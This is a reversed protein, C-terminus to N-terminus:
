ARGADMRGLWWNEFNWAGEELPSFPAAAASPSRVGVGVANMIDQDEQEVDRISEILRDRAEEFGETERIEPAGLLTLEIRVRDVAVVDVKEWVVFDTTVGFFHTPWVSYNWAGSFDPHCSAPLGFYGVPYAPYRSPFTTRSYAARDSTAASNKYDVHPMTSIAHTGIVHYCDGANDALVKWNYGGDYVIPDALRVMRGVDWAAIQESLPALTPAIPPQDGSLNVFLWGQWDECAFAPLDCGRGELAGLSDKMHSAGLFRGDQGYTWNHYPCRLRQANGPGTTLPTWRHRCINSVARVIGDGGRIILVQEGAVSTPFYDGKEPVDQVRGVCVWGHRFVRDVEAEFLADSRYCDPELGLSHSLEPKLNDRCRALITEVPDDSDVPALAPVAALSGAPFRSVM